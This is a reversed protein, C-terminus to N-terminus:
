HSMQIPNIQSVKTAINKPNEFPKSYVNRASKKGDRTDPSSQDTGKNTHINFVGLQSKSSNVSPRKMEAESSEDVLKIHKKPV